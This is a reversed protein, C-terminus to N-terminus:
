YCCSNIQKDTKNEFNIMYNLDEYALSKKYNYIKKITDIFVNKININNKASTEYYKMNNNEAFELIESITIKRENSLDSKNGVLIFEPEQNINKTVENKWEKINEFSKRNTIDFVLFCCDSNRYYARIISKFNEQGATDWIQIRIDDNDIKYNYIGFDLCITADHFNYFKDDLFRGIISSKGVNSDGIFIYKLIFKM